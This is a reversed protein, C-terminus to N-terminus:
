DKEQDINFIIIFDNKKIIFKKNYFSKKLEIIIQFIYESHKKKKREHLSM